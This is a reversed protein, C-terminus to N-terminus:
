KKEEPLKESPTLDEPLKDKFKEKLAEIESKEEKIEEVLENERRIFRKYGSIILIIIIAIGLLIALTVKWPFVWITNTAMLVQGTSGYSATLNVTFKGIMLKDGVQNSYERATGPFINKTELVSTSVIRGLMDKLTINGAPTIHYDGMNTIETDVKIPGYELFKPTQFKTVMAKETIPGAVRIYLLSAIRIAIPTEAVNGGTQMTLSSEPQFLVAAYRGGPAADKPANITVPISVNSNAAITIKDSYLKIWKAASYKEPITTTGIVTPNDLFVPTGKNDTVIFDSVSLTGAVPSSGLNQFKVTTSYSEGPNILIDQKPPVVSLPLVTQALAKGGVLLGLIGLLTTTIILAPKKM